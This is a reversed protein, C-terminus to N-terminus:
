TEEALRDLVTVVRLHQGDFWMPSNHDKGLVFAGGEYHPPAPKGHPPKCVWGRRGEAYRDDPYIVQDGFRFIV